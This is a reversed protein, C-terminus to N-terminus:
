SSFTASTIINNFQDNADRIDKHVVFARVPKDQQASVSQALQSEPSAGVVNFDPAEVPTGGSKAGGLSKSDFQTSSIAAIQAIGNALTLAQAVKARLPSTPDGIILQSGYALYGAQYTDMIVKSIKLAKEIQWAKKQAAEIAEASDGANKIERNKIADSIFGITSAGQTYIEQIQNFRQQQYSVNENALRKQLNALQIEANAREVTGVQYIEVLKSQIEKESKLQKIREKIANETFIKPLKLEADAAEAQAIQQKSILMLVEKARKLRLASRKAEARKEIVIIVDVLEQEALEISERYEKEAKSKEDLTAKSEKFENLRELQRQKFDDVRIRYMAMLGTSEEAIKTEEQEIFQKLSQQRIREVDKDLNLFDQKFTRSTETNRKKNTKDTFDILKFLIDLKEKEKAIEADAKKNISEISSKIISENLAAEAKANKVGSMLATNGIFRAENTKQKAEALDLERNFIIETIKGYIEQSKSLAAQSIAQKELTKIYELRARNADETRNKDLLIQANFEPYEDKLKKLAINKQETTETSDLLTRTYIEFNGVLSRANEGVSKSIKNLVSAAGALEEFKKIIKPMFSLLLQFGVIIGGVGMLSQGLQKFAGKVGGEGTRSFEQFLETLRGINNAVGQIGYSADSAVRGTEILIANNLGSQARNKKLSGTNGNITQGLGLASKALKTNLENQIKIQENVKAIELAEDTSIQALKKQAAALKDVSKKAKDVEKSGRENVDITIIIKKNQSAM